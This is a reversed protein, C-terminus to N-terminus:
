AAVMDTILKEAEALHELTNIGLAERSDKIEVAIVKKGDAVAEAVLDTVYYEGTVPSKEIKPLAQWLWRNDVAYCGLNMLRINRTEETADKAEIISLVKNNEDSVIRGFADFDPSDFRGSLLAVTAGDELVASVMRRLTEPRYFPHDGNLILTCGDQDALLPKVQLVAHGTGLQEEQVVYDYDDGYTERVRDGRFGIVLIPRVIEAQKLTNLLYTLIPQGSVPFLVKPMTTAKMRTGKGAALVIAHIKKMSNM